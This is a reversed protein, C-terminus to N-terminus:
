WPESEEWAEDHLRDFIDALPHMDRFQQMRREIQKLLGDRTPGAPMKEALSKAREALPTLRWLPWREENGTIYSEMMFYHPWPSEPFQRAWNGVLKRLARSAQLKILALGIQMMLDETYAQGATKEARVIAKKRHTKAGHYDLKEQELMVFMALLPAVQQPTPNACELTQKFPKEFREKMAKPLKLNVAHAYMWGDLIPWNEAAKVGLQLLEEARERQGAMFECTAWSGYILVASNPTASVAAEFAARAEAYRGEVMLRTGLQRRARALEFRLERNLPNVALAREFMAAAKDLEGAEQHLRALLELTSLHEPFRAVLSQAAKVAEAFKGDDDLYDVLAVQPDLWDPAFEIARRLCKETSPNLRKPKEMPGFSFPMFPADGVAAVTSEQRLANSAMRQWVMARARAREAENLSPLKALTKEYRQWMFHADALHMGEREMALAAMRDLEPDDAPKGFTRLYRPADEPMGEDIVEWYLVRALRAVLEAHQQKLQPLLSEVDRFVNALRGRAKVLTAQISRLQLLVGDNALRDAQRRLTTQTEPPQAAAFNRDVMLRLPAALRAPVRSPDLRSWNEIARADDRQYYAMLGRLLVKWELFPSALGIGQILERAADDAGTELHKFAARVRDFDARIAEPLIDRSGRQMAADAALPLVRNAPRPEPLRELVSVARAVEGARALAEAFRVLTAPIEGAYQLAADLTTAADRTSGQETLQSARALYCAVVLDQHDANPEHRYLQKALDLATQTKGERLAREVRARLASGSAPPSQVKKKSV